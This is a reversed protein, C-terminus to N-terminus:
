VKNYRVRVIIKGGGKWKMKYVTREFHTGTNLTDGPFLRIANEKMEM